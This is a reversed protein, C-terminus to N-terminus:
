RDNRRQSSKLKRELLSLYYYLIIGFGFPMLRLFDRDIRYVKSGLRLIVDGSKRKRLRERLERISDIADSKGVKVDMAAIEEDLGGLEDLIRVADRELSEIRDLIAQRRSELKVIDALRLREGELVKLKEEVTNAQQVLKEIEPVKSLRKILEEDSRYLSHKILGLAIPVVIAAALGFWIVFSSDHTALYGLYCVGLLLAIGILGSLIAKLMASSTTKMM